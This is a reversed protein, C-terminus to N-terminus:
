LGSARSMGVILKFLDPHKRFLKTMHSASDFNEVSMTLVETPDVEEIGFRSFNYKGYVKGMYPNIYEDVLAVEHNNYNIKTIDKLKYVPKGAQESPGYVSYAKKNEMNARIRTESTFGKKNRWATTWKNLKPNAVEVAHTIEHFTTGKNVTGLSGVDTTFSGEWFKCSGRQAKGIKSIAPIGNKSKVFGNGNFMRIYEDLYGRLQKKEAAKFSTTIKVDKIFQKVQIDSLNTKLMLQRVKEMKKEFKDAGRIYIDMAKKFRTPDAKRVLQFRRHLSDVVKYDLGGVEKLLEEGRKVLEKPDADVLRKEFLDAKPKPKVKPKPKAGMKGYSKQMQKLSKESGDSSVFKALAQDPGVKKALKDFYQFKGRWVKKGSALTVQKGGLIKARMQPPQKQLWSGYSTGTPVPGNVAARTSRTFNPPPINLGEYDITAVTRCRCNFHQPPTPGQGYKFVKQDLAMCQPATRSDLTALWKYSQTIDSNQKYVSQAATDSVQQISTRVLTSIQHNAMRTAEGGALALQKATRAKEGFYLQGLLRRGVQQTTEGSLLGDRITRGFLDANKEALGRFAKSVIDGNPLTIKSGMKATLNFSGQAQRLGDVGKVAAQLDDSLVNANIDTAKNRVVAEAFKPSVEVSRVSSRMGAPLVKKLQEEVFESQLKAIGDLDKILERSSSNSWGELSKKTQALLSRLRAATYKPQSAKPLREIAELKRVSDIIIRNYSQILEKSVKNEFRNLDLSNRFYTEPILDSYPVEAGVKGRDVTGFIPAKIKPAM